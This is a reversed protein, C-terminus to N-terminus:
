GTPLSAAGLVTNVLAFSEFYAGVTTGNAAQSANLLLQMNGTQNTSIPQGRFDFLYTGLPMDTKIRHRTYWAQTIPDLKFPLYTNAAALAFYNIDSGGNVAGAQDYELMLSLFQQFNTFPVGFDNGVTVGDLVTSNLRYQTSVDIPPLIPSGASAGSTYRPVQDLYVQYVQVSLSSITPPTAVAGGATFVANIGDTGTAAFINPNVTLNLFATANVAGAWIAGRLDRGSYACPVWLYAQASGFAASTPATISQVGFNNGYKIPDDTASGVLAAGSQFGEKATGLANLHRGLTNIRQYNDMDFLTVQSLLNGVNWNTLQLAADGGGIKSFTANLKVLFGKVLGVPQFPIRIVNNGAGPNPLVQSYISQKVEVSQGLIADRIANNTAIAQAAQQSASAGTASAVQPPSRM